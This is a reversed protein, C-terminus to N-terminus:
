HFKIAKFEHNENPKLNKSPKCKELKFKKLLENIYGIQHMLYGNNYKEFKIRIIIDLEGIDKISFNTKILEKLKLCKM